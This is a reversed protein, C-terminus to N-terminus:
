RALRIARKVTQTNGARDRATVTIKAVVRKKRRLALLVARRAKKSLKPRLTVTAGAAAGATARVCDTIRSTNPVTVTGGATVTGVEPISAKIALKNVSQRRAARLLAFRVVKDAAPAAAATAPASGAPISVVRTASVEDPCNWYDPTSCVGSDWARVHVYYTGPPLPESAVYSEQNRRLSDDYLVINPDLFLDALRGDSYTEPSTAVEIFETSLGAPRTWAATIRGDLHGASTLELAAEAQAGRTQRRVM